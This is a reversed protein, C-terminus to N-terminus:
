SETPLAFWTRDSSKPSMTLAKFDSGGKFFCSCHASEERALHAEWISHQVSSGVDFAVLCPDESPLIQPRQMKGSAEKELDLTPKAAIRQRSVDLFPLVWFDSVYAPSLNLVVWKNFLILAFIPTFFFLPLFKREGPLGM